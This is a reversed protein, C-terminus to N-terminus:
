IKRSKQNIIKILNKTEIVRVGLGYGRDTVKKKITQKKM